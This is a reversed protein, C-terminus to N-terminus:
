RPSSCASGCRIRSWRSGTRPETSAPDSEAQRKVGRGQHTAGSHNRNQCSPPWRQIRRLQSAEFSRRHGHHVTHGPDVTSVLTRRHRSQLLQLLEAPLQELRQAPPAVLQELQGVRQQAGVPRHGGQDPQTQRRLVAAPVAREVVRDIVALHIGLPQTPHQGPQRQRPHEAPPDHQGDVGGRPQARIGFGTGLPQEAVDVAATPLGILQNRAPRILQYRRQLAPWGAPRRDQVRASQARGIVRGRDGGGLQARHHAPQLAGPVPPGTIRRDQHHEVGAVVHAPQRVHQGVQRDLQDPPQAGVPDHEARDRGRGVPPPRDAPGAPMARHHRRGIRAAPRRGRGLRRGLGDAVPARLGGGPIPHMRPQGVAAGPGAM